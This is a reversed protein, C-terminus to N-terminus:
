KLIFYMNWGNFKLFRRYWYGEWHWERGRSILGPILDRHCGIVIYGDFWVWSAPHISINPYKGVNVMSKGSLIMLGELFSLNSETNRLTRKSRWNGGPVQSGMIRLSWLNKRWIFTSLIHINGFIPTGWFPHNIIPIGILISSKPTNESVGMYSVKWGGWGRAGSITREEEVESAVAVPCQCRGSHFEPPVFSRGLIPQKPFFDVWFIYNLRIRPAPKLYKKNEDRNPFSEWKSQYKEFPNFGGVLIEDGVSILYAPHKKILMELIQKVNIEIEIFNSWTEEMLEKFTWRKWIHQYGGFDM